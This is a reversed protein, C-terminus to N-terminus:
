ASLWYSGDDGVSLEWTMDYYDKDFEKNKEDLCAILDKVVKANTQWDM